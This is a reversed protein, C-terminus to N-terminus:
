PCAGNVYNSGSLITTIEGATPATLATTGTFMGTTNTQLLTNVASLCVLSSCGNFMNSFNTGASTDIAPMSALSTCGAWASIFTDMRSFDILPFSTLGFCGEWTGDLGPDIVATLGIENLPFSTLSSCNKWTNTLNDVKTMNVAPFSVLSNCDFWAHSFNTGASMDLNGVNFSTLSFDNRWANDFTTINSADSMTFTTINALYGALYQGNTLTSSNIIDIELINTNGFSPSFEVRTVNNASKVVVPGPSLANSSTKTNASFPVPNGDGWDVEGALDARFEISSGFAVPIIEAYLPEPHGAAAGRNGSGFTVARVSELMIRVGVWWAYWVM